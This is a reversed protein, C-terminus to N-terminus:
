ANDILWYGHEVMKRKKEAYGVVWNYHIVYPSEQTWDTLNFEFYNRWSGFLAPSLLHLSVGKWDACQKAKQKVTLLMNGQPKISTRNEMFKNFQYQDDKGEVAPAMIFDQVLKKAMPSPRVFMCGTNVNPKILLKDRKTWTKNGQIKPLPAEEYVTLDCVPQVSQLYSFPNRLVVFDIDMVLVSFGLELAQHLVSWKHKVIRCAHVFLLLNLGV